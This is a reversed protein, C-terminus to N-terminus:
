MAPAQEDSNMVTAVDGRQELVPRLFVDPHILDSLSYKNHLADVSCLCQPQM